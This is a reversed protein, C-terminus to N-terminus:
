HIVQAFAVTNSTNQEAVYRRRLNELEPNLGNAGNMAEPIPQAQPGPEMTLSTGNTDVGEVKDAKKQLWPGPVPTARSVTPDPPWDYFRDKRLKSYPVAVERPRIKKSLRSNHGTSFAPRQEVNDAVDQEFAFMDDSGKDKKKRSSKKLLAKSGSSTTKSPSMSPPGSKEFSLDEKAVVTATSVYEVPDIKSENVVPTFAIEGAEERAAQAKELAKEAAKKELYKRVFVNQCFCNHIIFLLVLAFATLLPDSTLFAKGASRSVSFKFHILFTEM